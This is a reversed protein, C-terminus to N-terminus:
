KVVQQMLKLFGPDQMFAAPGHAGGAQRHLQSLYLLRSLNHQDAVKLFSEFWSWDRQEALMGVHWAVVGAWEIKVKLAGEGITNGDHIRYSVLPTELWHIQRGAVLLRLFFDLDHAYRLASFFGLEDFVRRRIFLNSTTMIFNGNILALLMDGSKRYFALADQYWPNSRVRGKGDVFSLATCVAEAEPNESLYECCRAFREPHFRDDSNLIAVYEGTARHIGANIAHHAGRNPQTWAIIRSDRGARSMVRQFGHDSSGDDVVIIECPSLTQAQVSELAADIYAEHNYLPIVVSIRPSLSDNM